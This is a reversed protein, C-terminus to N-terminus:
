LRGIISNLRAQLEGMDARINDEDLILNELIASYTDADVSGRAVSNWIECFKEILKVTKEDDLVDKYRLLGMLSEMTTKVFDDSIRGRTLRYVFTEANAQYVQRALQLTSDTRKRRERDKELKVLAGTYDALVQTHRALFYTVVVLAAALFQAVIFTALPEPAYLYSPIGVLVLLAIFVVLAVHRAM